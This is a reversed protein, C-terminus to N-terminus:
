IDLLRPIETAIERALFGLAGVRESLRRGAEGHLYVGWAAAKFPDAGRALLGAIVGALVDGSGSVGLGAGGGAYRALRGDPAAIVTRAGKLVVVSSCRASAQVAAEIPDAEIHRKDKELLRAMEGAHPTLVRMESGPCDAAALGGADLVLPARVHRCLDTALAELDAEMGPGILVADAEGAAQVLADDAQGNQPLGLVRAEPVALSTAAMAQAPATMQLKGAGARLAAEAALRTAGLLEVGGGVVLVRGRAEKGGDGPHPLRHDRVWGADIQIMQSM